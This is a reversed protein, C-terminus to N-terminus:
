GPVTVIGEARGSWPRRGREVWVDGRRGGGEIGTYQGTGRILKWSGIGVHYGHGADVWNIRFRVRLTGRNGEITEIGRQITVTQGDRRAVRDSYEATGTGSDRTLPGDQLPTLVYEGAGSANAVGKSVIAVGQTAPDDPDPAAGPSLALAAAAILLVAVGGGVIVRRHQAM